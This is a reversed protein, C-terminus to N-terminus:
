DIKDTSLILEPVQESSLNMAGLLEAASELLKQSGNAKSVMAALAKTQAPTCKCGFSRVSESAATFASIRNADKAADQLAYDVIIQQAKADDIVALAECAVVSLEPNEGKVVQGLATITSKLAFIGGGRIGVNRITKAARVAWQTSQEATLPKGASLKMAATIGASISEPDLKDLLIVKGDKAALTRMKATSANAVVPIYRYAMDGRLVAIAGATDADEAVLVVDLGQATAATQAVKAPDSEIVPEFGAARVADLITNRIKQDDCVIMAYKKGKQRLAENILMMVMQHGQFKEAPMSNALTEAALFRIRRDPYGMANVLPMAGGDLTAVLSKAGSNKGLITIVRRAMPVNGNKLTRALVQQLYQPSSALAYYDAEPSGKWLNDKVGEPLDIERRICAALWLPVAKSFKADYQLALRAMRMAYVDCFIAGPVPSALLTNDKWFWVLVTSGGERHDPLISDNKDYYSEGLEYFLESVSAKIGRDTGGGCSIIANALVAKTSPSNQIDARMFAEKLRPLAAPYQMRGLAQALYTVLQLDTSQLAISYPRVAPRGMEHLMTVIRDRLLASTDKDSLRAILLPVTHEGSEILRQKAIVMGRLTGGMMEISKEIQEPDSRWATYGEKIKAELKAIIETLAKDKAGRNLTARCGPKTSLLYIDKALVDPNELIAKAYSQAVLPKAISIYHLMDDWQTQLKSKDKSDQAVAPTLIASVVLLIAVSVFVGKSRDSFRASSNVLM